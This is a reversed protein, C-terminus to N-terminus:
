SQARAIRLSLMATYFKMVRPACLSQLVYLVVQLVKSWHSSGSPYLQGQFIFQSPLKESPFFEWLYLWYFSTICELKM